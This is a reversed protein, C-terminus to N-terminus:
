QNDAPTFIIGRSVSRLVDRVSEPLQQWRSSGVGGVYVHIYIYIYIYICVYMCVYVYVYVYAYIYIYIYMYMYMYVYICICICIHMYVYVCVYLSLSHSIHQTIYNHMIARQRQQAESIYITQGRIEPRDRTDTPHSRLGGGQLLIIM